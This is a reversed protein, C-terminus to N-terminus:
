YLLHNSNSLEKCKLFFLAQSSHMMIALELRYLQMGHNDSNFSSAPAAWQGGTLFFANSYVYLM